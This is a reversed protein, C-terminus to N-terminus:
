GVAAVIAHLDGVSGPHVVLCTAVSNKWRHVDDRIKEAPGILAMEEVMRTPVAAIAETKRGALYLETIKRCEAEYGMRVFMNRHFNVDAAGMGGIYLAYGPRLRDAAREIDADVIVEVNAFVEFTEATRRAGPRAFGEHLARRYLPDLKPAFFLTILGDCIEAALAVNKPGQAALVIPLDKRLPHLISRLPKGLGTGGRVPLQYYAGAFRVAEERALIQRVIQVYERTRELPRGFVQGHWGEVVQPGSSGLGLIFRGGSLHDMTMAAMATAAPTRAQLQLISTGLRITTTTAGYWALPTLADSGYSEATWVSDLGLRDAEVVIDRAHAPPGAGWYGISVGLRV